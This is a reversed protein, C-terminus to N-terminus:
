FQWHTAGTEAHLCEAIEENGLRHLFVLREGAVVPSGYGTGKALEWILPPPLTRTLRTETSIAHHTPGLFATWEHTVADHALPQPKARIRTQAGPLGTTLVNVLVGQFIARRSILSM